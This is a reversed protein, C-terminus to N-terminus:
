LKLDKWIAKIYNCCSKCSKRMLNQASCTCSTGSMELTTQGVAIMCDKFWKLQFFSSNDDLGVTLGVLSHEGSFWIGWTGCGHGKFTGLSSDKVERLLMNWHRFHSFELAQFGLIQLIPMESPDRRKNSWSWPRCRLASNRQSGATNRAAGHSHHQICLHQGARQLLSQGTPGYAWLQVRGHRYPTRLPTAKPTWSTKKELWSRFISM